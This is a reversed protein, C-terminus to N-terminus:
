QKQCIFILNNNKHEELIKFGNKQLLNKLEHAKFAYYYRKVGTKGCPIFTDRWDYKGFSLIHRIRAQWIYKKYKKQFLNWVSIIFIGDKKLIRHIETLSKQRLKSSPLHHFSAIALAIDINSKELPIKLIDGQIFKASTTNAESLSPESRSKTAHELLKENNDIGIYHIKRHKKIFKYFRGNGCGLDAIKQGNEIYKIFLDFEDCDKKRTEDFEEAIKTYDKIVKKLIQKATKNNM